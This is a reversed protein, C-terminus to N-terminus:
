PFHSLNAFKVQYFFFMKGIWYHAVTKVFINTRRGTCLADITANMPYCSILIGANLVVNHPKHLLASILCFVTVLTGLSSRVDKSHLRNRYLKYAIPLYNIALIEVINLWFLNIVMNFSSPKLGAFYVTGTIARYYYVLLAATITLINTLLGNYDICNFIM